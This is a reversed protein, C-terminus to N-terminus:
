PAHYFAVLNLTQISMGLIICGYVMIVSSRRASLM